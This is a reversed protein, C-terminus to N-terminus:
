LCLCVFIGFIKSVSYLSDCVNGTLTTPLMTSKYQAEFVLRLRLCQLRSTFVVSLSYSLLQGIISYTGESNEGLAVVHEYSSEHNGEQNHRYHLRSRLNPRGHPAVVNHRHPSHHYAPLHFVLLPRLGLDVVWVM